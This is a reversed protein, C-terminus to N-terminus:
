SACARGVCYTRGSELYAIRKENYDGWIDGFKKSYNRQADEYIKLLEPHQYIYDFYYYCNLYFDKETVSSIVVDFRKNLGDALNM